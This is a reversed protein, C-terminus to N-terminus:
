ANNNRQRMQEDEPTLPVGRVQDGTAIAIRPRFGTFAKTTVAVVGCAVLLIGGMVYFSAEVGWLGAVAGMVAPTVISAFRTVTNRLGVTAGQVEPPVARSLLSYMVPQSIGQGVGRVAAAVMLLVLFAGILPTMAIAVVSSAICWIVLRHPRVLREASAALISGVAAFLESFGVLAGIITGSYGVDGLYVIYFSTQIAGPGNRLFTVVLVFAVAPIAALTFAHVHEAWSPVLAALARKGAVASDTRAAEPSRASAGSSASAVIGCAWISVCAFAAWAGLADWVAGVMIPGLFTGIRAALSFRALTATDGGSSQLSWTQAGGMALSSALGLILQLAVLAAFWGAAPYALPLFATAVALWLVVRPTGWRDMLIGGHISLAAPLVSRAAVILGIEAPSLGVAVAYLPVVVSLM